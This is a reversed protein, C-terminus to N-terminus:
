LDPEWCDLAEQVQQERKRQKEILTVHYDALRWAACPWVRLCACCEGSDNWHARLVEVADRLVENDSM